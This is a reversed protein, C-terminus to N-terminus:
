ERIHQSASIVSGEEPPAFEVRNRGLCKARYLAKDGAQLFADSNLQSYDAHTAVGVSATLFPGSPSGENAIKLEAVAERMAEAIRRAGEGDINPLIAVFEEGGFRALLDGARRLMHNLTEAVAILCEDGAAHGYRDNLNKFHDIDIMLLSLPQGTRQARNWEVELTQDLKRRNAIGTLSDKFSLEHLRNNAQLLARESQLLKQQARMYRAQLLSARLSYLVLSLAIAGIGLIFKRRALYAGMALVAFTFLIPSGNSIVLAVPHIDTSGQAPRTERQSSLAYMALVLFPIDWLLDFLTGSPIRSVADLYDLPAAVAAYVWLYVCLIRYLRREEGQPRGILRLSAAIALTINEAIYVYLLRRSSVPSSTATLSSVTFIQLYTLCVAFVVQFSDIVLFTTTGEDENSSAIALLIPIGYLVFYFDAGAATQQQSIRFIDQYTYILQGLFWLGVGLAILNWKTRASGFALGSRWYCALAASLCCLAIVLNSILGRSPLVLLAGHLAVVVLAYPLLRQIRM